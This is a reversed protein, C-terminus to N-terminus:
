KGYYRNVINVFEKMKAKSKKGPSTEIGRSVDIIEPGLEDLYNVVNESDVGGSLVTRIKKKKLENYLPYSDFKGSKNLAKEKANGSDLLIRDVIKSMANVDGKSKESWAKWIEIGKIKKVLETKENGHLQIVDAVGSDTITQIHKLPMDVTVAVIKTKGKKDKLWKGIKIFEDLSISRPSKLYDVVFGLYDVGLGIAYEAAEKTKMGCFKIKAGRSM